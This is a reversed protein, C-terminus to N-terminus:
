LGTATAMLERLEALRTAGAVRADAIEGTVPIVV